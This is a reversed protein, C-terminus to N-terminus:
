DNVLTLQSPEQDIVQFSNKIVPGGPAGTSSICMGTSDTTLAPSGKVLLTSSGTFWQVRVCPMPMLTPGMPMMNPCGSVIYNDTLLMPPSGQVRYATPSGPIHTIRGGHICMMVSQSNLIFAPM